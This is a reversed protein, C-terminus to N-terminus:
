LLRIVVATDIQCVYRVYRHSTCWLFKKKAIDTKGQYPHTNQCDM